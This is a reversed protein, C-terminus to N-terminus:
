APPAGNSAELAEDLVSEALAGTGGYAFGLELTGSQRQLFGAAPFGLQTSSATLLIPAGIFGAHAGGSLADAFNDGRAIAFSGGNFEPDAGLTFEAVAVSTEQRTPGALRQVEIGLETIEAQVANDVAATGGVILVETIGLDELAEKTQPPLDGPRTYLIPLKSSYAIPGASLSDAFGGVTAVVAVKDLESFGGIEEPRLRAVEVATDINTDGAVRTVRPTNATGMADLLADIASQSVASEGGVVYVTVISGDPADDVLDVVGASITDGDTLVLVGNDLGALYNGVLADAFHLGSALVITNLQRASGDANCCNVAAATDYRNAGALRTIEEVAHAPSASVLLVLGTLLAIVRTRV